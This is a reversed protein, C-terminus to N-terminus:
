YNIIKKCNRPDKIHQYILNSEEKTINKKRKVFVKECRYCFHSDCAQCTMHDSGGDKWWYSDCVLCKALNKNMLFSQVLDKTSDEFDEKKNEDNFDDLGIENENEEYFNISDDLNRNYFNFDHKSPPKKKLNKKSVIECCIDCFDCMKLSQECFVQNCNPNPCKMYQTDNVLVFHNMAQDILKKHMSKPLIKMIDFISM